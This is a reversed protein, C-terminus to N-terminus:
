TPVSAVTTLESDHARVFDEVSYSFDQISTPGISHQFPNPESAKPKKKKSFCGFM